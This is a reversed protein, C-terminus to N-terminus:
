ITRKTKGYFRSEECSIPPIRRRGPRGNPPLKLSERWYTIARRTVGMYEAIEYDLMGQEYLELRLRQKYKPLVNM